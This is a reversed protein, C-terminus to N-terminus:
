VPLYAKTFSQFTTMFWGTHKNANRYLIMTSWNKLYGFNNKKDFKKQIGQWLISLWLYQRLLELTIQCRYCKHEYRSFTWLFWLSIIKKCSNINIFCEYWRLSPYQGPCLINKFSSKGDWSQISITTHLIHSISNGWCM